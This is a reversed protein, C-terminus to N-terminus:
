LDYSVGLWIQDQNKYVEYGSLVSSDTDILILDAWVKWPGRFNLTNKFRIERFKEKPSYKFQYSSDWRFSNLYLDSYGIKALAAQKFLFRESLSARDSSVDPGVDIVEGGSTNVYALLLQFPNFNFLIQPGWMTGSSFQPANFSSDFEPNKPNTSLASLQVYGWDDRYGTDVSYDTEYYSKPTVDVRVRTTVLVGTYGLALQNSPKYIGAARAYFGKEDGYRLQLGGMTQSIIKDIEPRNINYDIPLLQGQFKVNQPPARFFPNGSQFQGDKIEFSAGQDPIFIPSAFVTYSFSAMKQDWFIGTLGQSQPNLRNWTFQPQIVGFNWLQDINSWNQLRRGVYLNSSEGVSFNYFIEKANVFSLVSNSPAYEATVDMKFFDTPKRDSKIQLGVFSFSKPNADYDTSIFNLNEAILSTKIDAYAICGRFLSGFLILSILHHNLLHM